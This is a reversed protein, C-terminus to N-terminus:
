QARHLQLQLKHEYDLKYDCNIAHRGQQPLSCAEHNQLRDVRMHYSYKCVGYSIYIFVIQDILTM